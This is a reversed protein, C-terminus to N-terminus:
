ADVRGDGGPANENSGFLALAFTNRPMAGLFPAGEREQRTELRRNVTM